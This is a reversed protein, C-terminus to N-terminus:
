IHGMIASPRCNALRGLLITLISPYAIGVSEQVPYFPMFGFPKTNAADIVEWVDIEMRECMQALENVLSVNVVRFVNEFLKSTEAVRPSSVPIASAKIVQQYFLQALETCRGTIGGVVRPIDAVQFETNGPDIREPSYAVFVDQGVKLGTSTVLPLLLEETTGPYTTSELVILQGQHLYPSAQEMLHKIYSTNPQKNSGLPTPVHIAVVDAKSISLFESTAILRGDRVFTGFDDDVVEDIYSEGLNVREVRDPNREIGTVSYGARAHLVALPLGVYGLGIIASKASRDLIKKKLDNYGDM